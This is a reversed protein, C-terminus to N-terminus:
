AWVAEYASPNSSLQPSRLRHEENLKSYWFAGSPSATINNSSLLARKSYASIFSTKMEM